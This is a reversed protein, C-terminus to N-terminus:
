RLETQHLSLTGCHSRPMQNIVTLSNGYAPSRNPRRAKTQQHSIFSSGYQIEYRRDLLQWHRNGETLPIGAPGLTLHATHDRSLGHRWRDAIAGDATTLVIDTATLWMYQNDPRNHWRIFVVAVPRNAPTVGFVRAGAAFWATHGAVGM